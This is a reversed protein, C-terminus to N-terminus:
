GLRLFGLIVEIIQGVELALVPDLAPRDVAHMIAQRSAKTPLAGSLLGIAPGSRGGRGRPTRGNRRRDNWRSAARQAVGPAPRTARQLGSTPNTAPRPAVAKRSRSSRMTRYTRPSRICRWM